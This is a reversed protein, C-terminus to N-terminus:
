AAEKLNKFMVYEKMAGPQQVHKGKEAIKTQSVGVWTEIDM